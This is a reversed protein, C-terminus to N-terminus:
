VMDRDKVMGECVFKVFFYGNSIIEIDEKVMKSRLGVLLNIFVYVYM